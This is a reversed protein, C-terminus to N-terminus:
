RGLRKLGRHRPAVCFEEQLADALAGILSLEPRGSEGVVFAALRRVRCDQPLYSRDGQRHKLLKVVSTAGEPGSAALGYAACRAVSEAGDLLAALLVQRAGVQGLRYAASLREVESSARLLEAQRARESLGMTIRSSGGRLWACIDELIPDVHANPVSAVLFRPVNVVRM